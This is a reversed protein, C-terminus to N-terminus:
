DGKTNRSVFANVVLVILVIILLIGAKGLLWSLFDGVIPMSGLFLTAILAAVASIAAALWVEEVVKSGKLAVFMVLFILVFPLVISYVGQQVAQDIVGELANAFLYTM